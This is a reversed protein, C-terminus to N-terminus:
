SAWAASREKQKKLAAISKSLVTDLSSSGRKSQVVHLRPKRGKSKKEIFELVRERYEDKFETPDFEGELLEVLQAAMSIEKKDM